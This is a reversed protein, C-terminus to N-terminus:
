PWVMVVRFFAQSGALSLMVGDGGQGEGQLSPFNLRPALIPTVKVIVM